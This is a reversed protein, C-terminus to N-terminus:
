PIEVLMGPRFELAFEVLIGVKGGSHCAMVAAGVSEVKQVEMADAGGCRWEEKEMSPGAAEGFEVGEQWVEFLVEV